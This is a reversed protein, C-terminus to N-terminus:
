DELIDYEFNIGGLHQSIRSCHQRLREQNSFRSWDRKTSWEPTYSGIFSNYAEKGINITQKGPKNVKPYHLIKQNDTTKIYEPEMQLVSSKGPMTISLRLKIEHM